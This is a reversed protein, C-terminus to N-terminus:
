AAAAAPFTGHRYFHELLRDKEQFRDMLWASLAQEGEPVQDIEYRRVNLHVRRVYGKIWQWLTPVGSVYCVTLDYVADVHGRLAQVSAIFGKSRPTLVHRLPVLGKAEAYRRSAEVKEPRIRTGEVFTMLWLPVDHKLIKEFVRRISDRDDAWNRKVFVCDLFLLGWGVGPVYKLVDKAFWKLDGLRRKLRALSFIVPIDSMTQHNLIVIANERPPVDDGSLLVKIGYLKQAGLDCWGWWLNAMWRNLRRFGGQSFPKIVLSATQLLNFGILTAFLFASAVTGTVLGRLRAGRETPEPLPGQPM